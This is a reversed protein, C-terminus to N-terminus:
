KLSYLRGRKREEREKKRRKGVYLWLIYRPHDNSNRGSQFMLELIENREVKM